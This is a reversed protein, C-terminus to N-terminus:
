HKLVDVDHDEDAEAEQHGEELSVAEAAHADVQEQSREAQLPAEEHLTDPVEACSCDQDRKPGNQTFGARHLEEDHGYQLNGDEGDILVQNCCNEGQGGTHHGGVSDGAEHLVFSFQVHDSLNGKVNVTVSGGLAKLLCDNPSFMIGGKRRQLGDQCGVQADLIGATDVIQVAHGADQTSQSTNHGH